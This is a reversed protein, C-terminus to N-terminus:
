ARFRDVLLGVWEKFILEWNSLADASPILYDSLDYNIKGIFNTPYYAANNGFYKSFIMKSRPIHWASTIVLIRANPQVKKILKYSLSANEVTNRSQNEILISSDPIGIQKLYNYVLDGEKVTKDILNASGSTILIKNINGNKYLSLTQFLRDATMGFAIANNRKNINSFGGLVIGIDYKKVVPYTPEYANFVKGVIFSNSFVFLTILGALLYRKQKTGNKSILAILFLCIVWVVPKILFFLIKSLVFIM